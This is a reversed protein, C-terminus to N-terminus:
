MPSRFAADAGAVGAIQQQPKLTDAWASGVTERGKQEVPLEERTKPVVIGNQDQPEARDFVAIHEHLEVGLREEEGVVIAVIRRDQDTERLDRWAEQGVHHGGRPATGM